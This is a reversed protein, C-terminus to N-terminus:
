TQEEKDTPWGLTVTPVAYSRHWLAPMIEWDLAYSAVVDVARRSACTPADM